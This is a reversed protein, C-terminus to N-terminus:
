LASFGPRAALYSVVKFKDRFLCVCVSLCLICHQAHFGAGSFSQVHSDAVVSRHGCQTVAKVTIKLVRYTAGRGEAPNEGAAKQRLTKASVRWLCLAEGRNKGAGAPDEKSM